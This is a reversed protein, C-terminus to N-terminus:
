TSAFGGDTQRSHGVPTATHFQRAALNPHIAAVHELSAQAIHAPQAPGLHGIHRLGGRCGEVRRFLNHLLHDFGGHELALKGFLVGFRTGDFQKFLEAQGIRFVDAVAKRMLNGAPLQLAAHRGEREARFRIQHHKVFRCRCQIHGRLDVHQGRDLVGDAVGTNRGEIDGVVKRHNCLNRVMDHDQLLALHNFVAGNVLDDVVRLFFVGM